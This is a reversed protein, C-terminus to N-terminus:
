LHMTGDHTVGVRHSAERAGGAGQLLAGGWVRQGMIDCGGLTLGEKSGISGDSGDGGGAKGKGKGASPGGLVALLNYQRVQLPVATRHRYM